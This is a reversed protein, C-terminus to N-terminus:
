REEEAPEKSNRIFAKIFPNVFLIKRLVALALMLLILGLTAISFGKLYSGTVDSMWLGFVLGLFIILIFLLFLSIMIWIFYGVMKSLLRIGRLRYIEMRTEVYDRGLKINEKIVSGLDDNQSTM